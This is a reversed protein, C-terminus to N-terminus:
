KEEPNTVAFYRGVIAETWPCDKDGRILGGMRLASVGTRPDKILRTPYTKGEFRCTGTDVPEIYCEPPVILVKGQTVSKKPNRNVLPRSDGLTEVNRVAPTFKLRATAWDVSEVTGRFNNDLSRIFAAYCNGNEDGAASHVNSMYNFDCY